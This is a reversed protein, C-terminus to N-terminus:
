NWFQYYKTEEHAGKDDIGTGRGVMNELSKGTIVAGIAASPTTNGIGM